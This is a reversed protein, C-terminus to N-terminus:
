LNKSAKNEPDKLVATIRVVYNRTIDSAHDHSLQREKHM